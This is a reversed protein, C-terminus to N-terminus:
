QQKSLVTFRVCDTTEVCVVFLRDQGYQLNNISDCPLKAGHDKENESDYLTMQPQHILLQFQQGFPRSFTHPIPSFASENSISEDDASQSKVYWQECVITALM